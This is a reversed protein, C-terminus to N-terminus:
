SGPPFVIIPDGMNLGKGVDSLGPEDLGVEAAKPWIM